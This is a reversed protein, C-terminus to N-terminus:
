AAPLRLYFLINAHRYAAFPRVPAAGDDPAFLSLSSNWHGTCIFVAGLPAQKM